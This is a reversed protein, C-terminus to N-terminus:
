HQMQVTNQERYALDCQQFSGSIPEIRREHLTSPYKHESYRRPFMKCASAQLAIIIQNSVEITFISIFNYHEEIFM